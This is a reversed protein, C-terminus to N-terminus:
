FSPLYPYLIPLGRQRVYFEQASSCVASQCGPLLLALNGYPILAAAALLLFFPFFCFTIFPSSSFASLLLPPSFLSYIEVKSEKGEGEEKESLSM